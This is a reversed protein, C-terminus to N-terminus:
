SKRRSQHSERHVDLSKTNTMYLDMPHRLSLHPRLHLGHQLELIIYHGLTEQNNPYKGSSINLPNSIPLARQYICWPKTGNLNVPPNTTAPEKKIINEFARINGYALHVVVNRHSGVDRLGEPGKSSKESLIAKNNTRSVSFVTVSNRPM